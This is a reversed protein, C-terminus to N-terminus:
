WRRKRREQDLGDPADSVLPLSSLAELIIQIRCADDVFPHSAFKMVFVEVTPRVDFFLKSHFDKLQQIQGECTLDVTEM